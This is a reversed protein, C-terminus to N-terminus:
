AARPYGRHAERHADYGDKWMQIRTLVSDAGVVALGVVVLVGVTRTILSLM